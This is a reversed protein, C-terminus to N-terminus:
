KAMSKSARSRSVFDKEYDAGLQQLKAYTLILSPYITNWNRAVHGAM